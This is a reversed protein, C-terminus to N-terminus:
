RCQSVTHVETKHIFSTINSDYWPALPGSYIMINLEGPPALLHVRCSYHKTSNM